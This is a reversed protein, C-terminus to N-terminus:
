SLVFCNSYVDIAKEYQKTKDYLTGLNYLYNINNSEINSAKEFLNIAEDYNKQDETLDKLENNKIEKAIAQMLDEVNGIKEIDENELTSFVGAEALASALLTYTKGQSSLQTSTMGTQSEAVHYM